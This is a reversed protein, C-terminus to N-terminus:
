ADVFVFSDGGLLVFVDVGVGIDVSVEVVWFGVVRTVVM